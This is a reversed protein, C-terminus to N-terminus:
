QSARCECNLRMGGWHWEAQSALYLFEGGPRWPQGKSDVYRHDRASLKTPAPPLPLQM